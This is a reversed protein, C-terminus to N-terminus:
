FKHIHFGKESLEMSTLYHYQDEILPYDWCGMSHFMQGGFGAKFRYLGYLPHSPDPSPSVGFMDYDRCGRQKAVNIANWQLAYTGMLHKNESSSAGYLYSARGGALVLFMAALPTGKHEAMLLIVETDTQEQRAAMVARFYDLGHLSFHNRTATEGYLAYWVNLDEIGMELVEVGKRTALGINYRTKPKMGQLLEGPSKTLDLFMTNSPLNNSYAKHFNWRITNMNFRLEQMSKGPPGMWWGDQDYFQRDSAWLSEWFLDYRLSICNKPLFPRLSESLEELFLGQQEQSPELEPGYPAYAVTHQRSVPKIMLLVDSRIVGKQAPDNTLASRGSKFEIALSEEGLHDKVKSWFTTQQVIPTSFLAEPDKPKIDSLM